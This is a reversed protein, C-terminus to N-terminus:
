THLYIFLVLVVSAQVKILQDGSQLRGDSMAPDAVVSRIFCGRILSDDTASRAGSTVSFGLGKVGRYLQLGFTQVVGLTFTVVLM